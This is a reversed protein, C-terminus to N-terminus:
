FDIIEDKIKTIITKRHLRLESIPIFLDKEGGIYYSPCLIGGDSKIQNVEEKTYIEWFDESFESYQGDDFAIDPNSIYCGPQIMPSESSANIIKPGMYELTYAVKKM